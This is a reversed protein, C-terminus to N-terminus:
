ACLTKSGLHVMTLYCYEQKSAGTWGTDLSPTWISVQVKSQTNQSNWVPKMDQVPKVKVRFANLIEDNIELSTGKGNRDEMENMEPIKHPVVEDLFGGDGELNRTELDEDGSSFVRKFDPYSILGGHQVAIKSVIQYIEQPGFPIGLYDMGGFFESCSLVGTKSSNFARFTDYLLM